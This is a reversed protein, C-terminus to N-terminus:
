LSTFSICIQCYCPVHVIRPNCPTLSLKERSNSMEIDKNFVKKFVLKKQLSIPLPSGNEKGAMLIVLVVSGVNRRVEWTCKRWDWQNEKGFGKSIEKRFCFKKLTLIIGEWGDMVTFVAIQITKCEASTICNGWLIRISITHADDRCLLM